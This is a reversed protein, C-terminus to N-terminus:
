LDLSLQVTVMPSLVSFPRRTQTLLLRLLSMPPSPKGYIAPFSQLWLTSLLQFPPDRMKRDMDHRGYIHM